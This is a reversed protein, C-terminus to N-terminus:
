QVGSRIVLLRVEMIGPRLHLNGTEEEGAEACASVGGCSEPPTLRGVVAWM